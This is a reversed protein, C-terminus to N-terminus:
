LALALSLLRPGDDEFQDCPRRALCGQPHDASRGEFVEGSPMPECEGQAEDLPRCRVRAESLGHPVDPESISWIPRPLPQFDEAPNGRLLSRGGAALLVPM